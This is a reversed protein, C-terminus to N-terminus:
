QSEELDPGNKQYEVVPLQSDNVQAELQAANNERVRFEYVENRQFTQYRKKNWAKFQLVIIAIVVLSILICANIILILETQNQVTRNRDTQVNREQTENRLSSNPNYNIKAEDNKMSSYAINTAEDIKSTSSM